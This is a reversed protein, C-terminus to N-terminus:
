INNFNITTMHHKLFVYVRFTGWAWGTMQVTHVPVEGPPPHPSATNLYEMGISNSTNTRHRWLVYNTAEFVYAIKM